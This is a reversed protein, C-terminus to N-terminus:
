EAIAMEYGWIEGWLDDDQAAALFQILLKDGTKLVYNINDNLCWTGAGPSSFVKIMLSDVGNYLWHQQTTTSSANVSATINIVAVTAAPCKYVEMWYTADEIMRHTILKALRDTYGWVLPLKRWQTGDWGHTGGKFTPLAPDTHGM